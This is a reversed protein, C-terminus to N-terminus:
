IPDNVKVPSASSTTSGVGFQGKSNSGWCYAKNDSSLVCTTNDGTTIQKITASGNMAGQLVVVPNKSGTNSGDGLQGSGNYGWCYARSNTGIACTYPARTSISRFNVAAPIAGQAVAYPYAIYSTGEEGGYGQNNDRGWCYVRDNSAVVCVHSWGASISKVTAGAPIAGQSVAVPTTSNTNTGNGLQSVNNRGWCYAKDNSAIACTNELSASISKVTAGAPMAGQSVAVPTASNTTTGNGLQGYNNQGWCYAKDNSAIACAYSYNASISKVTAGAPMAGQSVAVPSASNTTTGNGLQNVNNRGWCYAKDNSAIACTSELGVSISKLTVGAPMAGQSVAVPTTSNATTGNGLQGYNNQGWCRGTSSPNTLACVTGDGAAIDSWVPDITGGGPTSGGSCTGNQFSGSQTLFKVAAPQKRSVAEICFAAADGSVYTLKVDPSSKFILQNAQPGDKDFTSGPTLVPYSNNFNIQNKFATSVATLDSSLQKDALGSQWSGYSMFSLTALIGIIFIVAALEVVTFGKSSKYWLKM